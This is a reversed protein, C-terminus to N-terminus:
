NKANIKSRMFAKKMKEIPHYDTDCKKKQYNINMVMSMLHIGDRNPDVTTGKKMNGLRLLDVRQCEPGIHTNILDGIDTYQRKNSKIFKKEIKTIHTTIPSTDMM